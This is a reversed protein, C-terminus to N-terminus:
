RRPLETEAGDVLGTGVVKDGMRWAFEREAGEAVVRDADRLLGEVDAKGIVNWHVLTLDSFFPALMEVAPLTFSDYLMVTHGPILAAATSTSRFHRIAFDGQVPTPPGETTTVGPRVIAYSEEHDTKPLGLLRTLDPVLETQGTAHLDSDRWLGPQLREVLQQVEVAAGRQTWHTDRPHYVPVPSQAKLAEVPGYLDVSWPRAAQDGLAARLKDREAFACSGENRQRDTLFEPYISTKEPALAYVFPRGSAEVARAFRDLVDLSQAPTLAETCLRRLSPGYFLWDHAGRRVDGASETKWVKDNLKANTRVALGRFAWRDILVQNLAQYTNERLLAQGGLDPVATPARNEV